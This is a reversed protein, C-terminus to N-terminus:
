RASMTMMTSRVGPPRRSDVRVMTDRIIVERAGTAMRTAGEPPRAADAPNTRIIAASTAAM